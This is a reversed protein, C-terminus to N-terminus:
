HRHHHHLHCFHFKQAPRKKELRAGDFLVSFVLLLFPQVALPTAFCKLSVVMVIECESQSTTGRPPPPFQVLSILVGTCPWAWWLRFAHQVVDRSTTPGVELSQSHHCKHAEWGVAFGSSAAVVCSPHLDGPIMESCIIQLCVSSCCLAPDSHGLKWVCACLRLLSPLDSLPICKAANRSTWLLDRRSCLVLNSGVCACECWVCYPM